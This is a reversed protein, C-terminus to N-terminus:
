GHKKEGPEIRIRAGGTEELRRLQSPTLALAYAHIKMRRLERAKEAAEDPDQSYIVIPTPDLPRPKLSTIPQADPHIYEPEGTYYLEANCPIYRITIPAKQLYTSWDESLLDITTEPASMNEALDICARLEGPSVHPSAGRRALASYEPTKSAEEYLGIMRTLGTIEEKDLGALPRLVPATLRPALAAHIAHLNHLTQSSTQGISEGTAIAEYGRRRAAELYLLTKFCPMWVRKPMRRQIELIAEGAHIITMRPRYGHLWQRALRSASRIAYYASSPTSVVMHLFDVLVGRKATMWAAAPTDIGGSYLILARGESGPPLGGPGSYMDSGTYLYARGGRVEIYVEVEPNELDVGRSYPKLRAGVERAVDLSTFSHRGVRRPRVAFTKGEVLGAALREAWEAIEELGSFGELVGRIRIARYVGFVRTLVEVDGPELGVFVRGGEVSWSVLRVGRRSASDEVALRLLRVFRSRTYRSKLLVEGSPVLIFLQLVGV